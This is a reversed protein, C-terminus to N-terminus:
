YKPDTFPPLTEGKSVILERLWAVENELVKLKELANAKELQAHKLENSLEAMQQTFPNAHELEKVRDELLVCRELIERERQKRRDRFRASAGANRRRKEARPNIDVSVLRRAVAHTLIACQHGLENWSVNGGLFRDFNLSCLPPLVTSPLPINESSM